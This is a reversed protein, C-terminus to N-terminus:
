DEEVVPVVSTVREGGTTERATKTDLTRASHVPSVPSERMKKRKRNAWKVCRNRTTSAECTEKERGPFVQEGHNMLWRTGPQPSGVPTYM